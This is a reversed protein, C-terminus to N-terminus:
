IKVSKHDFSEPRGFICKLSIHLLEHPHSEDSWSCYETVDAETVSKVTLLSEDAMISTNLSFDSLRVQPVIHSALPLITLIIAFVSLHSVSPTYFFM